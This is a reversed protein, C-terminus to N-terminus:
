LKYIDKYQMTDLHRRSREPAHDYIKCLEKIKPCEAWKGVFEIIITIDSSKHNVGVEKVQWNDDLKGSIGWDCM